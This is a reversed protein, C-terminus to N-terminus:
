QSFYIYIGGDMVVDSAQGCRTSFLRRKGITHIMYRPYDPMFEGYITIQYHNPLRFSQRTIFGVCSICNSLAKCTEQSYRFDQGSHLCRTSQISRLM